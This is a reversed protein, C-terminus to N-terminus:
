SQHVLITFTAVLERTVVGTLTDKLLQANAFSVVVSAFGAVTLPQGDIAGKAADLVSCVEQDGRYQSVVRVQVATESGWKLASPIGMTNFPTEGVAEVLVYPYTPRAPVEDVIRAVPVLAVLPAAARLATLVATSVPGLACRSAM